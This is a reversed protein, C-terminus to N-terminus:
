VKDMSHLCSGIADAIGSGRLLPQLLRRTGARLLPSKGLSSSPSYSHGTLMERYM